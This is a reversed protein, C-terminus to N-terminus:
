SSQHKLQELFTNFGGKPKITRIASRLGLGTQVTNLSVRQHYLAVSRSGYTFRFRDKDDFRILISKHRLTASVKVDWLRGLLDKGFLLTIKVADAKPLGGCTGIAIFRLQTLDTYHHRHLTLFAIAEM